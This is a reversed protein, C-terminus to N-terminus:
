KLQQPLQKGWMIGVAPQRWRSRETCRGLGGRIFPLSCSFGEGLPSPVFFAGGKYAPNPTFIEATVSSISRNWM